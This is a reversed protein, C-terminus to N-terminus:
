FVKCWLIFSNTQFGTFQFKVEPKCPVQCLINPLKCRHVDSGRMSTSNDAPGTLWAVFVSDPVSVVCPSVPLFVTCQTLLTRSIWTPILCFTLFSDIVVLGTCQVSFRGICHIEVYGQEKPISARSAVNRGLANSQDCGEPWSRSFFHRTKQAVEAAEPSAEGLRGALILFSEIFM